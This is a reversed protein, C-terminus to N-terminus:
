SQVGMRELQEREAEAKLRDELSPGEPEREWGKAATLAVSGFAEMADVMRHAEHASRYARSVWLYRARTGLDTAGVFYHTLVEPGDETMERVYPGQVVGLAVEAPYNTRLRHTTADSM